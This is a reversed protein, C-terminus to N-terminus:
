VGAGVPNLEVPLGRNKMSYSAAELIQVVRLGAEGDAPFPRGNSLAQVFEDVETQLAETLPLKPAWMDGSRYDVLSAESGNGNPTLTVGKDYVRIKESPELDNYIIMKQDNSIM